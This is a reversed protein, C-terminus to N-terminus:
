KPNVCALVFDRRKAGDLHKGDALHQCTATQTSHQRSAIVKARSDLVASAASAAAAPKAQPKAEAALVALPLAFSILLLAQKKMIQM